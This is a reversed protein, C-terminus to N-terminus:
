GSRNATYAVGWLRVKQEAFRHPSPVPRAAFLHQFGQGHGFLAGGLPRAAYGIAFVSFAGRLSAAPDEAPFFLQGLIPALFGYVAFDYWELVNGIAGAAVNGLTRTPHSVTM